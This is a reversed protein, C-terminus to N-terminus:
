VHLGLTEAVQAGPLRFTFRAGPGPQSEVWM